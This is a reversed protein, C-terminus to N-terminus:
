QSLHVPGQPHETLAISHSSSPAPASHHRRVIFWKLVALHREEGEKADAIAAFLDPRECWYAPFETLSVPSLIFPPATLSSLDGSFSAISTPQSRTPACRRRARSTRSSSHVGAAESPRQSPRPLM